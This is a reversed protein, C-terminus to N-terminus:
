GDFLGSIFGITLVFFVYFFKRSMFDLLNAYKFLIM